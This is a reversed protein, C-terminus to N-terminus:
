KTKITGSSEKPAVDFKTIAQGADYVLSAASDPSYSAMCTEDGVPFTKPQIRFIVSGDSLAGSGGLTQTRSGVLDYHTFCNLDVSGSPIPSDGYGNLTVTLVWNQGMTINKPLQFDFQPMSLLASTVKLPSTASATALRSSSSSDPEYQATITYNEPSFTNGPIQFGAVGNTLSADTSFNGITLSILGSPISGETPDIVRVTVKLADSALMADFSASDTLNIRPNKLNRSEPQATVVATSDDSTATGADAAPTPKVQQLAILTAPTSAPSGPPLSAAQNSTAIMAPNTASSCGAAPQWTSSSDGGGHALPPVCGQAGSTTTTAPAAAKPNSAASPASSGNWASSLNEHAGSPSEPQVAAANQGALSANCNPNGSNPNAVCWQASPVPWVKTATGEALASTAAAPHYQAAQAAATREQAALRQAAEVQQRAAAQQLEFQRQQAIQAQQQAVLENNQQKLQLAEGTIARSDEESNGGLMAVGAALDANGTKAGIVTGAMLAVFRGLGGSSSSATDPTPTDEVGNTYTSAIEGNASYEVGNAPSGNEWSGVYRTGDKWTFTGQGSRKGNLYTGEYRDGSTLTM